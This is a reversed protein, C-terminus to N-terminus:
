GQLAREPSEITCVVTGVSVEEDADILQAVLTGHVPAPIEVKVKDAEVELLGQGVAVADGVNRLWQVILVQETTDGLRPVKVHHRM